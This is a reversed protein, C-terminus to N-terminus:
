GINAHGKQQESLLSDLKRKRAGHARFAIVMPKGNLKRGKKFCLMCKDCTVQPNTQNPCVLVTVQDYEVRKPFSSPVVMVTPWGNSSARLADDLSETSANVTLNPLSNLLSADLRRWGHTYTWGKLDRRRTHVELIASITEWDPQDNVFLDGSVMYRVKSGSPLKLLKAKWDEKITASRSSHIKTPGNQAYCGNNLLPCESPCTTGVQRYTRYAHGLKPHFDNGAVLM